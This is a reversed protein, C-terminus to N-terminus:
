VERQVESCQVRLVGRGGDDGSVCVVACLANEREIAHIARALGLAGAATGTEGFSEAVADLGTDPLKSGLWMRVYGWEKSKWIDGNVPAFTRLTEVSTPLASELLGALVRGQPEVASLRHGPDAAVALTEIEALAREGADEARELWLFVAGEGPMLGVPQEPTKLVGFADLSRLTQLDLWSDVTGVLCRSVAGAHLLKRADELAEFFATPGGRRGKVAGARLEPRLELRKSVNGLAPEFVRQLWSEVEDVPVESDVDLSCLSGRLEPPIRSDVAFSESDSEVDDPPDFEDLQVGWASWDESPFAFCAGIPESELASPVSDSRESDSRVSCSRASLAQWAVRCLELQRARGYFRQGFAAHVPLPVPADEMSDYVTMATSESARVLGARAAACATWRERGLSAVLELQTIACTVSNKDSQSDM